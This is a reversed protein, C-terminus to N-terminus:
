RFILFFYIGYFTCNLIFFIIAANRNMKNITDKGNKITDKGNKIRKVNGGNVQQCPRVETVTTDISQKRM